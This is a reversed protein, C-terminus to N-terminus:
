QPLTVSSPAATHTGPVHLQEESALLLLGIEKDIGDDLM